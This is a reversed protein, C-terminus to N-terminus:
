FISMVMLLVVIKDDRISAASTLGNTPSIIDDDILELM